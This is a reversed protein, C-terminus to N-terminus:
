KRLGIEGIKRFRMVYELPEVRRVELNRYMSQLVGGRDQWYVLRFGFIQSGRHATLRRSQLFQQYRRYRLIM